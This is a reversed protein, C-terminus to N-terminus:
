VCDAVRLSVAGDADLIGRAKISVLTLHVDPSDVCLACTLRKHVDAAGTPGVGDRTAGPSGDPM